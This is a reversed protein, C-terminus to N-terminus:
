GDFVGTFSLITSGLNFDRGVGSPPDTPARLVGLSLGVHARTWLAGFALGYALASQTRGGSNGLKLTGWGVGLRPAVFGAFEDGFVLPLEAGVFYASYDLEPGGRDPEDSGFQAVFFAGLGVPEAFIWDAAVGLAILPALSYGDEAVLEEHESGALWGLGLDLRILWSRPEPPPEPEPM